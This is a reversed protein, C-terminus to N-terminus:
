FTRVIHQQSSPGYGMFDLIQAAPSPVGPTIGGFLVSVLAIAAVGVAFPKGGPIREIGAFVVSIGLTAISIKVAADPYGHLWENGAGIGGMALLIGTSAAM